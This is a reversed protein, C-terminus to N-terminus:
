ELELTGLEPLCHLQCNKFQMDRRIHYHGFVWHDPQHAQLMQDFAQSTRSSVCKMKAKFYQYDEGKKLDADTASDEYAAVITSGLLTPVISAPAEHTVMIRPKKELYLSIAEGLQEYSLEEDAWWSVNPIRWAADISWAGGCFFMQNSEDYGFDGAYNPHMRCMAPSDHNGRIFRLRRGNYPFLRVGRFGIGMDGVQFFEKEPPAHRIITRLREIHGHTDGVFIM